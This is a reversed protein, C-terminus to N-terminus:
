TRAAQAAIARRNMAGRIRRPNTGAIVANELLLDSGFM